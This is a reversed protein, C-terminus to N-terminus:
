RLAGGHAALKLRADHVQKAPVMLAGSHADLKYPIESQQLAEMIETADKDSLSGYLLSYNPTQSWLVVAVGLAVSAALGVMLGIQRVAPLQAFGQASEARILAM